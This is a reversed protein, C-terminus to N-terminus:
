ATGGTGTGDGTRRVSGTDALGNATTLWCFGARGDPHPYDRPLEPDLRLDPRRALPVGVYAAAEVRCAGIVKALQYAHGRALEADTFKVYPYVLESTHLEDCGVEVYGLRCVRFRTAGPTRLLGRLSRSISAVSQTTRPGILADCRVTRVGARWEPVSPVVQLVVIDRVIDPPQQGLFEGMAQWSCVGGLASELWLPSPRQASRAVAGTIPEVAYTESEHASTCPVEPSTDSAFMPDTEVLEDLRHCSGVSWITTYSGVGMGVQELAPLSCGSAALAAAVCLVFKFRVARAKMKVAM